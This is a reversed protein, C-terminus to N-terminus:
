AHHPASQAVSHRQALDRLSNTSGGHSRLSNSSGALGSLKTGSGLSNLANTGTNSSSAPFPEQDGAIQLCGHGYLGCVQGCMRSQLVPVSQVAHPSAGLM